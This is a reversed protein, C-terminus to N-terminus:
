CGGRLLVVRDGACALDCLSDGSDPCFWEAAAAPDNNAHRFTHKEKFGNTLAESARLPCEAHRPPKRCAGSNVGSSDAAVM